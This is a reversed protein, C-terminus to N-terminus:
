TTAKAWEARTYASGGSPREFTNTLTAAHAAPATQAGMVACAALSM